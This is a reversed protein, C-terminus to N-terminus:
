IILVPHLLLYHDTRCHRASGKRLTGLAAALLRDAIDTLIIAKNQLENPFYPAAMSGSCHMRPWIARPWLM